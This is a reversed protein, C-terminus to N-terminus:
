LVVRECGMVGVYDGVITRLEPNMVDVLSRRVTRHHQTYVPLRDPTVEVALHHGVQRCCSQPNDGRVEDAIALGVLGGGAAVVAIFTLDLPHALPKLLIIEGVDSKEALVPAAQYAQAQHGGVIRSKIPHDDGVGSEGVSGVHGLLHDCRYLLISIGGRCRCQETHLPVHARCARTAATGHGGQPKRYPLLEAPLGFVEGDAQHQAHHCLGM